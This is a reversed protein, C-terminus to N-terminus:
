ISSLFFNKLLGIIAVAAFIFFAGFVFPVMHKKLEAKDDPSSTMYKIAIAILMVVAISVGVAQMIAIAQGGISKVKGEDPHSVWSFNSDVVSSIDVAYTINSIVCMAIVILVFAIKKMKM